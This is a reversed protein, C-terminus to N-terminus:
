RMGSLTGPSLRRHHFEILTLNRQLWSTESGHSLVRLNPAPWHVPGSLSFLSSCFDLPLCHYPWRESRPLQKFLCMQCILWQHLTQPAHLM